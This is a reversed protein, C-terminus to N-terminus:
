MENLTTVSKVPSTMRPEACVVNQKINFELAFRVESSPNCNIYSILKEGSPNRVTSVELFSKLDLLLAVHRRPKRPRQRITFYHRWTFPRNAEVLGVHMKFDGMPVYVDVRLMQTPRELVFISRGGFGDYLVMPLRQWFLNTLYTCGPLLDYKKQKRLLTEWFVGENPKLAKNATLFSSSGLADDSLFEM